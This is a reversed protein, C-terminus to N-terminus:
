SNIMERAMEPTIGMLNLGMCCLNYGVKGTLKLDEYQEKGTWGGNEWLKAGITLIVNGLKKKM